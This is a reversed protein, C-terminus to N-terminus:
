RMQRLRRLETATPARVSPRLREVCPPSPDRYVHVPSPPPHLYHLLADIASDIDMMLEEADVPPMTEHALLADLAEDVMIQTVPM